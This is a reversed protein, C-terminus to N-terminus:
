VLSKYLQTLDGSVQSDAFRQVYVYGKEAMQERQDPNNFLHELSQRIESINVPDIFMSDPGAAEPFCGNRTTIVPLKSYLAEIIPIGFGECLSPYCFVTACQYLRALEASTINKIFLVQQGMGNQDIYEHVQKAYGKEQGVLVLPFGTGHIAKVLSLVNKRAQITGVNLIFTKPLNFKKRVADKDSESYTKKYVDNCGQYIVSIKSQNAKLYRILDRKTQESIAVIRDAHKIAYQFKLRYIIRDFFNYYQPHSLFIVDHITVVRPIRKAGFQLPLEGSLGHFVDISDVNIQKWQGFLRWLSPFAKWFWGKPYVITAKQLAVKNELNSKKTNFLYFHQFGPNDTLIRVIDRGYNGLGTNNHFIRKADYGINM